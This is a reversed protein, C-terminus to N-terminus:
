GRLGCSSSICSLELDPNLPLTAHDDPARDGLLMEFAAAIREEADEAQVYEIIVDLEPRKRRGGDNNNRRFGTKNSM